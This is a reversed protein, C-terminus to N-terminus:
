LCDTERSATFRLALCIRGTFSFESGSNWILAALAYLRFFGNLEEV